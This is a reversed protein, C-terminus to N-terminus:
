ALPLLEENYGSERLIRLFEPGAALSLAIGKGRCFDGIEILAAVADPQLETVAILDLAVSAGENSCSDEIAQRLTGMGAVDLIGSGGITFDRGRSSVSLSFSALPM